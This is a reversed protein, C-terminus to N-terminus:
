ARVLIDPRTGCTPWDEFSTVVEGTSLITDESKTGSISPNWGVLQNPEVTRTETPTAKFDRAAYGMPGGQHHLRWEEAFGNAAYAEIGVQLVDCWRAGPRTAAHLAEDVKCVADHRRRLDTDLPGFHVLRTLSVILGRRSACVAAMLVREVRKQTPIPHRYRAIREDAAVLLVPAHIGRRRLARSLDAAVEHETTGRKVAMLTQQVAVGSEYGLERVADIEAPDLSARLPAVVDDPWDCLFRGRPPGHPEWWATSSVEWEAGFEEVRLRTAEINDTLVLRKRETWVVSAVGLESGLDCHVDAGGTIWAVNARRRLHVGDVGREVCFRRLRDHKESV